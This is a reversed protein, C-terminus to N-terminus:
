ESFVDVYSWELAGTYTRPKNAETDESISLNTILGRLEQGDYYLQDFGDSDDWGWELAARELEWRFGYDDDDVRDESSGDYTSANPYDGPAMGQIDFNIQFTRLDLTYKGGLLRRTAGSIITDTILNNSIETEVRNAKMKFVESGDNRRLEVRTETM